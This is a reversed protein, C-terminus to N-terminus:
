FPFVIRDAAEQRTRLPRRDYRATTIPNAHGMLRQVTAIDVGLDLLDGAYTRRLDHPTCHRVEAKEVLKLFAKYIGNDTLRADTAHGKSFRVFMAGDGATERLTARRELWTMLARRVPPGLSVLREKNGKGKVVIGDHSLDGADLAMVESRRLGAGFLLGILARDRDGRAGNGECAAVMAGIEEPSLARGALLREGRIPKVDSAAFMAVYTMQGLKVASRLVGRVASLIRNGTAPARTEALHSRLAAVHGYTLGCWDLEAPSSGWYLAARRLSGIVSRRSSRTTLGAVYVAAPHELAVGLLRSARRQTLSPVLKV